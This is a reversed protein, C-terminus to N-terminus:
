FMGEKCCASLKSLHEIRHVIRVNKINGYLWCTEKNMTTSLLVFLWHLGITSISKFKFKTNKVSTVFQNVIEMGDIVQGIVATKFSEKSHKLANGNSFQIPLNFFINHPVVRIVVFSVSIRFLDNQFNFGLNDSVYSHDMSNLKLEM